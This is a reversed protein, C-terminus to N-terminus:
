LGIMAGFMALPVTFIIVLPRIWSEYLAAMFLFVCVISLAFIWIALSGTKQEQFTTGTWEYSFGEPLIEDAVREMATIAQGSSFGAAPQGTIQAANYMNYHPVDTAGLTSKVDGLASLPVPKKQRSLVYLRTIDDRRTRREGVAQILVKWVKGYLN